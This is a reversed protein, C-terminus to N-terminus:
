KFFPLDQKIALRYVANIIGVHSYAQPFNGWQGFSDDADESFLGLHNSCKLANEFVSFADDILGTNALAEVYWFTCVLFTTEPIGFDDDATYRYFFGKPSMLGKELASLHAAARQSSPDLYRMNILQLTSADMNNLGIAQTYAHVKDNYCREIYRSSMRIIKKAKKIMSADHLKEAIKCAAKAGAWHFLYTYCHFNRRTRYEWIGSDPIDMNELIRDLLWHVLKNEQLNNEADLRIDTYLPLLCMLLQGYVDNQKQLYANNGIRVPRNNMYGSFPLEKETLVKAGSLGYVPQIAKDETLIINQIFDFYKELEEFHGISSFSNLTFYADRIWCYRYDWNRGSGNSEPLSTTGSAIVAGTDEYQHLKLILASRVVEEQYIPPISTSKIWQIWYRKTKDLFDEVTTELPAELPEGYTLVCYATEPLLFPKNENVYNLPINTTLRVQSDLNLYRIHNSGMVVVPELMGWEGRPSCVVRIVPKGSIPEIKRILMLPKFYREFHYFRPAFDTVRYSGAASVIETCLINTNKIYYQNSSFSSQDPLVSFEGGKEKDILGGFLFASDFRPMCLWQVRTATDIYAMYSCNGVVGLDYKHPKKKM